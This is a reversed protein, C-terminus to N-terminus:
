LALKVCSISTVMVRQLTFLKMSALDMFRYLMILNFSNSIVLPARFTSAELVNPSVYLYSERFVLAHIYFGVWCAIMFKMGTFIGYVEDGPKCFDQVLELYFEVRLEMSNIRYDVEKYQGIVTYYPINPAIYYEKVSKSNENSDKKILFLLHVVGVARKRDYLRENKAM